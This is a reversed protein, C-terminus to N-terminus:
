SSSLWNSLNVDVLCNEAQPFSVLTGCEDMLLSGFSSCVGERGGTRALDRESNETVEGPQGM